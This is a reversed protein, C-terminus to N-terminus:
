LEWIYEVADMPRVPIHVSMFNGMFIGVMASTPLYVMGM